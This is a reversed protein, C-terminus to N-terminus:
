SMFFFIYICSIINVIILIPMGIMFSRHKTKHRFLKMGIYAGLASGLIALAWFTREPIRYQKKMAKRKDIYMLLFSMINVGILYMLFSSYEEM